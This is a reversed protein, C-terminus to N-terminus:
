NNKAGALIWRKILNLDATSIYKKMSGGSNCKNYLLSSQPENAVVYNGNTLSSFAMSARLDPPQSGKHCAVCSKTFVPVVDDKFSITDTVVITTDTGTTTDSGTRFSLILGKTIPTGSKNVIGNTITFTYLTNATLPSAPTFSATTGSLAITGTVPTSNQSLTFTNSNLSNEEMVMDFTATIKKNLSVGTDNNVPDTSVLNPVPPPTVLYDYECSALLLLGASFFVILKLTLHKM